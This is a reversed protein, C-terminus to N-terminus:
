VVVTAGDQLLGGAELPRVWSPLLYILGFVMWVVSVGVLALRGPPPSSSRLEVARSAAISAGYALVLAMGDRDDRLVGGLRLLLSYIGFSVYLYRQPCLLILLKRLDRKLVFLRKM